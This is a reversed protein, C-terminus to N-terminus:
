ISLGSINRKWVEILTNVAAKGETGLDLSYDNVYLDIHKRMVTEDMEQSHDKVYDSLAPYKEFSYELSRRILKDVWDKIAPEINKKIVIGGLPIPANTQREWYEGLDMLKVLGKEHYTFRNEHIIVGCDVECSLV